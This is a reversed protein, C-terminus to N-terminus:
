EIWLKRWKNCANHWPAYTTPARTVRSDVCTHWAVGVPDLPVHPIWAEADVLFWLAKFCHNIESKRLTRQTHSVSYLWLFPPAPLLVHCRFSLKCARIVCGVHTTCCWGNWFQTLQEQWKCCRRFQHNNRWNYGWPNREETVSLFKVRLPRLCRTTFSDKRSAVYGKQTLPTPVANQHCPPFLLPTCGKAELITGVYTYRPAKFPKFWKMLANTESKLM